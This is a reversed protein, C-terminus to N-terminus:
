NTDADYVITYTGTAPPPGSFSTSGALVNTKTYKVTAGQKIIIKGTFICLSADACAGTSITIAATTSAVYTFAANQGPVTTTATGPAGGVTLTGGSADAPVNYLNVGVSGSNGGDPDIYVKYTGTSPLTVPERWASGQGISYSGPALATSGFMLSAHTGFLAGKSISNNSYYVAIKQGATGPFTLYGNQGPALTTLTTAPPTNNSPATITGTVDASVNYITVTVSGINEGYPNVWLKFTGTSNLTYPGLTEDTVGIVATQAAPLAPVVQNGAPNTIRVGISNAQDPSSISNSTIFVSYRNGSAAPFTIAGNQGPVTFTQTVPSGLTAASLLDAPPTYVTVDASGTFLGAPDVTIKYAGVASLTVTDYFKSTPGLNGAAYLATGDPKTISVKSSFIGNNGIYVSFRTGAAANNYTIVGNQGYASLNLTTPTGATATATQDATAQALNLTVDGTYGATPDVTISYNGTTPLAVPDVLSGNTSLAKTAVVASTTLDRITVNGALITDPTLALTVKQAATGAFTYVANQGPITFSAVQNGGGITMPGTQDAPVTYLAFTVSGIVASPPNVTITYAGTAPLTVPGTFTGTAGVSFSPVVVTAGQKIAVAAGTASIGSTVLSIRQGATGSFTLTGNQGAATTTLTTPTGDAPIATTADAPVDWVQVNAHGTNTGYPDLVVKYNGTAAATFPELWKGTTIKSPLVVAAGSPTKLSFVTNAKMTSGSVRVSYRHGAVAPFLVNALEGSSTTAVSFITGDTTITTSSASASAVTTLLAIAAVAAIRGASLRDLFSRPVM